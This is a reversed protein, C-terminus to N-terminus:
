GVLAPSLGALFIQYAETMRSIASDQGVIKRRLAAEFELVKASRRAPNLTTNMGSRM